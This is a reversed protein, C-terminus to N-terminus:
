QTTAPLVTTQMQSLSVPRPDRAALGSPMQWAPQEQRAAAWLRPNDNVAQQTQWAFWGPNRRIERGKGSLVQRLHFYSYPQKPEPYRRNWLDDPLNFKKAWIEEVVYIQQIPEHQTYRLTNLALDATHNTFPDYHQRGLDGFPKFEGWPPPSLQYYRGSEGQGIVHTRNSFASWGCFMDWVIFYMTPHSNPKYNLAHAAVGYFMVSLYAAITGAALWRKM